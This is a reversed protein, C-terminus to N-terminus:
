TSGTCVWNLLEDSVFCTVAFLINVFLAGCICQPLKLYIITM